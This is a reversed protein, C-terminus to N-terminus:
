RKSFSRQAARKSFSRQAARKRLDSIRQGAPLMRQTATRLPGGRLNGRVRRRRSSSMSMGSHKGREVATYFMLFLSVMTSSALAAPVIRRDRVGGIVLGPAILVARLFWHGIFKPWAGPAGDFV